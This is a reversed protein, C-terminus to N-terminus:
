TASARPAILADVADPSTVPAACTFNRCVYLAAKGDVLTKGESLPLSSSAGVALRAEIRNPLYSGAIKAALERHGPTDASGVLVLELSAESLFDLANLSSGFARPLREISRAYGRLVQHAREEWEPKALHRALRALALAAIANANPIAGDHGDRVRAILTEHAHATQYFPGGEPDGFDDLLRQALRAAENLFRESGSVEYLSVLGQTLYAYDELYADLHAKGARFTRFLGGDPRALRELLFSAARAASEAYGRAPWVRAAQALAEIM